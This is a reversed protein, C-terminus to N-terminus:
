LAMVVHGVTVATMDDRQWEDARERVASIVRALVEPADRRIPADLAKIIRVLDQPDLDSRGPGHREILGDTFALLVDGPDFPLALEVWSGGLASLLPGTGECLRVAKDHTVIVAPQHGANVFTISSNGPDVLGIFMTVFNDDNDFTSAAMQAAVRPPTNAKLAARTLDRIRLATLTASTGHGSTDGLVMALQGNGVEFMDWWDGSLVGEASSSTGGISLGPIEPIHSPLFAARLENVLPAQQALGSRAARAEDIEAVLSRRLNEADLAVAELEPPGAPSIPHTHAGTAAKSLDRRIAILPQVVWGNVAVFAGALTALLLAALLVLWLGLQRTFANTQERADARQAQINDRFDTTTAIMEDFSQWARPRNTARAADSRNGEEMLRLTPEADNTVWTQQAARVGALQGLLPSDGQLTAELARLLSDAAEISNSYSDLARQRGTLVYDSVDGSAASQTAILNDALETAPTLRDQVRIANSFSLLYQLGVVIAVISLVASAAIFALLLRRRLSLSSLEM